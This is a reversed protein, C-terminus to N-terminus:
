GLFLLFLGFMLNLALGVAGKLSNVELDTIVLWTYWFSVLLGTFTGPSVLLASDFGLWASVVIALPVGFGLVQSASGYAITLVHDMASEDKSMALQIGVFLSAANTVVPILIGSGISAPIRSESSFVEFSDVLVNGVFGVGLAGFFLSMLWIKWDLSTGEQVKGVSFGAYSMNSLPINHLQYAVTMVYISVVLFSAMLSIDDLTTESIRAVVGDGIWNMISSFGVIILIFQFLPLNASIVRKSVPLPGSKLGSIVMATPAVLLFNGVASGGLTALGISFHGTAAAVAAVTIETLNGATANLLGASVRGLSRSVEETAKPIISALLLITVLAFVFLYSGPILQSRHAYLVAPVMLSSVGLLLTDLLSFM